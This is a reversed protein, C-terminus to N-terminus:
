ALLEYARYSNTRFSCGSGLRYRYIGKQIGGLVFVPTPTRSPAPPPRTPWPGLFTAFVMNESFISKFILTLYELM